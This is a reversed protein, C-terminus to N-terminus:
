RDISRDPDEEALWDEYEEWSKILTGLNPQPSGQELKVKAISLDLASIISQVRERTLELRLVDTEPGGKHDTPKELPQQSKCLELEERLM